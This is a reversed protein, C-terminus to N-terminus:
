HNAKVQARLNRLKEELAKILELDTRYTISFQRTPTAKTKFARIHAVAKDGSLGQEKIEAWAKRQAAPDSQLRRLARGHKETLTGERIDQQIEDPLKTLGLLNFVQQKTLGIEKRKGIDEWSPLGLNVRLQILAEARDVPNLDERHLNELLSDIYADEDSHERMIKAPIESLGAELAARYRREGAVIEYEERARIERVNIPQIVGRAKVSELLELRKSESFHRRPQNPNPRIVALALMALQMKADLVLNSAELPPDNAPTSVASRLSKALSNRM